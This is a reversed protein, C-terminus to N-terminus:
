FKFGYDGEAITLTGEWVNNHDDDTLQVYTSWGSTFGGIVDVTDTVPNFNGQAVQYEMHVKFTVNAAFGFSLMMLLAVVVSTAKKM